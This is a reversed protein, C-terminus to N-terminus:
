DMTSAAEKNFLQTYRECRRELKSETWQNYNTKTDMAMKKYNTGHKRRQKTIYKQEEESMSFAERKKGAAPEPLTFVQKEKVIEKTQPKVSNANVINYDTALGLREMNQKTTMKQDWTGQLSRARATLFFSSAALSPAARVRVIDDMTNNKAYHKTKQKRTVKNNGTKRHGRNSGKAM